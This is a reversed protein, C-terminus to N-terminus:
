GNAPQPAIGEYIGTPPVILVSLDVVGAKEFTMQVPVYSSPEAILNYINIFDRSDYAFSIGDGRPIPVQTVEAGVRFVGAPSGNITVATLVDGEGSLDFIRTLLTASNSGEPGAVLTANEIRINESTVQTGNGSNMTSQINTAAQMGQFCGTLTPLALTALAIAAIRTKNRKM